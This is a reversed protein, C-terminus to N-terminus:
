FRTNIDGIMLYVAWRPTYIGRTEQVRLDIATNGPSQFVSQTGPVDRLASEQRRWSEPLCAAIRQRARQYVSRAVDEDPALYHCVYNYHGGQWGWVECNNGVLQETTSWISISHHTRRSGRIEAFQRAHSEALMKLADCRDGDDRAPESVTKTGTCATTLALSLAITALKKAHTMDIAWQISNDRQRGARWTRPDTPAAPPLHTM